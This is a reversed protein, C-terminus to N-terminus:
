PAPTCLHAPLRHMPLAHALARVRTIRPALTLWYFAVVLAVLSLLTEASAHPAALATPVVTTTQAAQDETAVQATSAALGDRVRVMGLLLTAGIMGPVVQSCVTHHPACLDRLLRTAGSARAPQGHALGVGYAGLVSLLLLSLALILPRRALRRM